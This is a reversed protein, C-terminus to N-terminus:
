SNKKLGHTFSATTVATKINSSLKNWIKPGFSLLSKQGKNIRYLTIDLAMQSRTNSKNLSPMLMTCLEIRREVPLWNIKM